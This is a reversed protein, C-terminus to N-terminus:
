EGFRLKIIELDRKLNIRHFWSDLQKQDRCDWSVMFFFERIDPVLFNKKDRPIKEKHHGPITPILFLKAAPTM